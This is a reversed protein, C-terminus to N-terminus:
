TCGFVSASNLLSSSSLAVVVVVVVAVAVVVVVVAFLLSLSFQSTAHMCDTGHLTAHMCDTGHSTSHMCDTGHSTAHMCDTGHSTAHMCDTGHSAAHMCDTGFWVMYTHFLLFSCTWFLCFLPCTVSTVQCQRHLCCLRRFDHERFSVLITIYLTYPIYSCLNSPLGYPICFQVNRLLHLTAHTRFFPLCYNASATNAPWVVRECFNSLVLNV